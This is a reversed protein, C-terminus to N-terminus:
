HRGTHGYSRGPQSGPSQAQEAEGGAAANPRSRSTGGSLCAEVTGPRRRRQSPKAAPSAGSRGASGATRLALRCRMTPRKRGYPLVRSTTLASMKTEAASPTIGDNRSLSTSSTAIGSSRTARSVASTAPIIAIGMTVPARPTHCVRSEFRTPCATMCSRRVATYRCKCRRERANKVRVRVPSTCLRIAFSMPPMSFTTVEM